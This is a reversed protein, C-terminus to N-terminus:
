RRQQMADRAAGTSAATRALAAACTASCGRGPMSGGGSMHAPLLLRLGHQPKGGARHHRAASRQVWQMGRGGGVIGAPTSYLAVMTGQAALRATMFMPCASALTSARKESNTCSRHAGAVVAGKSHQASSCRQEPTRARQKAM